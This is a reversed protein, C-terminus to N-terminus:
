CDIITLDCNSFIPSEPKLWQIRAFSLSNDPVQKARIYVLCGEALLATVQEGLKIYDIDENNLRIEVTRSKPPKEPQLCNKASQLKNQLLTRWHKQWNTKSFAQAVELSRKKFLNIQGPQELLSSLAKKFEEPQPDILLGNYNNIILDSLGGVRSAIIANGSAMAELCSLSTGESHVSPILCIDSIRYVQPMDELELAYYKVRKPWKNQKELVLDLDQGGGRGVFHFEVDHYKELIDDVIDLVIYLGRGFYLQRPYLIIRKDRIALYNDSPKFQELDVYNPIVRIRQALDFDVTQLWNASNTDVSVLEQCAKAGKIYRENMVWFEVANEFTCYPNDWAVGHSIGINPTAAKPWAEFFASYINLNTRDQVLEYFIQNFAKACKLVWGEAIIGGRSLSIVDINKFRRMWPYNGYQFIVLESGLEECLEALDLLYREAGGSYFFEGEFDFFTATMVAIKRNLNLNAYTQWCKPNGKLRREILVVNFQNGEGDPPRLSLYKMNSTFSNPLDTINGKDYKFCSILDCHEFIDESLTMFQDIHLWLFGHPFLSACNQCFSQFSSAETDASTATNEIATLIIVSLNRFVPIISAFSRILFLNPEPEDIKFIRNDDSKSCVFCLYGYSIMGRLLLLLDQRPHVTEPFLYIIIAKHKRCGLINALELM